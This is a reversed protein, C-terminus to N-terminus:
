YLEHDNLINEGLKPINWSFDPLGAQSMILYRHIASKKGPRLTGSGARRVGTQSRWGPWTLYNISKPRKGSVLEVSFAVVALFFFVRGM